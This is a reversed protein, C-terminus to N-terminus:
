RDSEPPASRLALDEHLFATSQRKSAWSFASPAEETVARTSQFSGGSPSFAASLEM